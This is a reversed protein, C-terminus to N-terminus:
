TAAGGQQNPGPIFSFQYEAGRLSRTNHIIEQTHGRFHAVSEIAAQMGSVQFGQIDHQHLLQQRSANALTQNVDKAITHLMKILHTRPIRDRQSFEQPRNRHDPSGGIGSVIWQRLNGCNHLILNAISNQFEDPRWWIEDDSLQGLCHCIKGIADQLEHTVSATFEQEFSRDDQDRM